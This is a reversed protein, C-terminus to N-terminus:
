LNELREGGVIGVRETRKMGISTLERDTQFVPRNLEPGVSDVASFATSPTM